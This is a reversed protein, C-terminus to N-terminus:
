HYQKPKHEHQYGKQSKTGHLPLSFIIECGEGPASIIQYISKGDYFIQLREVTGRLGFSKRNSELTDDMIGSLQEPSIGVGDDRIHLMLFCNKRYARIQIIGFDGTPLIGHYLSNEVLPQLVLRPITLSLTDEGIEYTDEFRDPFRMKQLKLYNKVINVETALSIVESGKSLSERYYESLSIVMDCATTNQRDTILYAIGSLSNYLFHPKIQEQLIKLEANRLKKQESIKASLLLEIKDVMENYADQLRGIEDKYSTVYAPHFDGQETKNMAASLRYLPDTVFHSTCFAILLFLSTSILVTFLCILLFPKFESSYSAFKTASFYHMNLSSNQLSLLLYKDGGIVAEKEKLAFLESIANESFYQALMSNSFQLVPSHGSYVCIDSYNADKTNSVSFLEDLPINIIMYGLPRVDEISNILRILSLYNNEGDPAFYGGGNILFIPAGSLRHVEDYWDAERPSSLIAHPMTYRAACESNGNEDLIMISEAAPMSELSLYLANRLNRSLLTSGKGNAAGNLYNQIDSSGLMYTSTKSIIRITNDANQSITELTQFALASISKKAERHYFFRILTINCIMCLLIIFIYIIKFKSALSRNMFLQKIHLFNRRMAPISTNKM